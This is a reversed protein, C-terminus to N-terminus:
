WKFVSLTLTTIGKNLRIQKTKRKNFLQVGTKLYVSYNDLHQLCPPTKLFYIILVKGSFFL